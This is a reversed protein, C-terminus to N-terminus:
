PLKFDLKYDAYFNASKIQKIFELFEPTKKAAQDNLYKELDQKRKEIFKPEKNGFM